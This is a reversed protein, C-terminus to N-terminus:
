VAAAAAPLHAPRARPPHLHRCRLWRSQCAYCTDRTQQPPPLPPMYLSPHLLPGVVGLRVAQKSSPSHRRTVIFGSVM